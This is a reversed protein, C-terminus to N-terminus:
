KIKQGKMERGNQYLVMETVKGAESKFFEVEAPVAKLFFRKETKAFMQFPPQGTAQGYLYGDKFTVTISFNPALAYEGEYQKLIADELKVEVNAEPITYPKGYLVAAVDNSLKGLASSANSLLIITYDQAPFWMANSTYGYIGGGHSIRQQGHLSDIALGYGYAEKVPTMAKQWSAKKLLKGKAMAREWKLLDSATTYISGAAYSFTSDIIPAPISGVESLSFYGTTKDAGKFGTFDFGTQNMQLPKLINERVVQEWPKGTVKEIIYGLLVYGSNSYSYKTGPEFDLPKDLFLSFMTTQDVPKTGGSQMFQANNTYNYIGSTHTLLHHLTIKDGNPFQPFYKSLKDNVSLKGQEELLLIIAATFQKTISGIQFVSAETNQKKEGANSYGYGKNLLIEDGKAILATGSFKYQDAYAKLLADAKQVPTQAGATIAIVLLLFLSTLQKM